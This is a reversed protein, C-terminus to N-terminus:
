AVRSAERKEDHSPIEQLVNEIILRKYKVAYRTPIAALARLARREDEHGPAYVIVFECGDNALELQKQRTPMSSGSSAFLLPKELNKAADRAMEAASVYRLDHDGFGQQKLSAQAKKATAADAFGAVIHGTPYFMGAESVQNADEQRKLKSM